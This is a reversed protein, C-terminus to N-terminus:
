AASAFSTLERARPERESMGMNRLKQALFQDALVNVTMNIKDTRLLSCVLFSFTGRDAVATIVRSYCLLLHKKKVCFRYFEINDLLFM